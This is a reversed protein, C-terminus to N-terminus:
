KVRVTEDWCLNAGVEFSMYTKIDVEELTGDTYLFYHMMEFKGFGVQPEAETHKAKLTKCVKQKEYVPADCSSLVAALLFILPFLFKSKNIKKM